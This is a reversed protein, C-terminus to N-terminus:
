QTTDQRPEVALVEASKWEEPVPLSLTEGPLLCTQKGVRLISASCRNSAGSMSSHNGKYQFSCCDAIYITRCSPRAYIDYDTLFPIGAILPKDLKEVVLGSFRLKHHGIKIPFDAEGRTPLPTEGDAM